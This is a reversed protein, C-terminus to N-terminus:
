ALAPEASADAGAAHRRVVVVWGLLAMLSFTFWQVAYSLHSGETREPPPAPAPLRSPQPPSQEALLVYAPFFQEDSQRELQTVDLRVFMEQRERPREALGRARESPMLMGRVTVEGPPAVADPPVPDGGVVPAWGRSVAVASGDALVLPTVVWSGTAGNYTRGVVLVEEDPAYRGTVEVTRYAVPGVEGAADGAALLDTLAAAPAATREALTANLAQREDLRRLQWFGLNVMLVVLGVVLLHFLVWRPRLLFRYM